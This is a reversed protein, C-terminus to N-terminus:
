ESFPSSQAEMEHCRDNKDHVEEVPNAVEEALNTVKGQQGAVERVAELGGAHAEDGPDEVDSNQTRTVQKSSLYLVEMDVLPVPISQPLWNYQIHKEVQHQHHYTRQEEDLEALDSPLIRKLPPRRLSIWGLRLLCPQLDKIQALFYFIIKM